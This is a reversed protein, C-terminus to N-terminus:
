SILKLFEQRCNLDDKFVGRMASTTTMTGPKRVGRMEMCLHRAKLIVGVGKPKLKEMIFEALQHAIREQNQFKRAFLDLARPLKSLGVIRDTPVYAIAGKGFFPAMHHECLSYFDIDQVIVMEDNDAKFTTFEFAPPNLFEELFKVYRNPTEKLGERGVNEGMTYLIDTVGNVAYQRLNKKDTFDFNRDLIERQIDSKLKVLQDLSLEKITKELTM